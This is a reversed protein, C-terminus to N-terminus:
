GVTALGNEFVAARAKAVDDVAFAMQVIGPRRGVILV